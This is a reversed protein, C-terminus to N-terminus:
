FYSIVQIMERNPVLRNGIRGYQAGFIMRTVMPRDLYDAALIINTLFNM